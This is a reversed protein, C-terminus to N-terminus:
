ELYVIEFHPVYFTPSFQFGFKRYLEDYTWSKGAPFKFGERLIDGDQNTIVIRDFLVYADYDKITWKVKMHYYSRGEVGIQETITNWAVNGAPYEFNYIEFRNAGRKFWFLIIEVGFPAGGTPQNEVKKYNFSFTIPGTIDKNDFRLECDNVGGPNFM